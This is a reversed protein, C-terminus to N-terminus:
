PKLIAFPTDSKDSGVFIRTSDFGLVKVACTRVSQIVAPVHWTYHLATIGSALTQWTVGNDSSYRVNFSAANLPAKWTINYHGGAEIVESGKLSLLEINSQVTEQYEVAGIDYGAGQPRSVGFFDHDPVGVSSGSDRCPSDTHLSYDGAAPNVFVPDADIDGAGTTYSVTNAAVEGIDSYSTKLVTVSKNGKSL